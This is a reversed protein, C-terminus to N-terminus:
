GDHNRRCCLAPRQRQGYGHRPYTHFQFRRTRRFETSDGRRFGEQMAAIVNTAPLSKLGDPNVSSVSGTLDSKRQVGYGIAVVEDLMQTDERLSVTLTEGSKFGVTAPMYGIYVVHISGSERETKITFKGDIDTSTAATSGKITVTAGPLPESTAADLVVGSVTQAKMGFCAGMALLAVALRLVLSQKM